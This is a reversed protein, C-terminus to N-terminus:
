VWFFYTGQRYLSAFFELAGVFDFGGDGEKIGDIDLVFVNGCIGQECLSVNSAIQDPFTVSMVVEGDLVVLGSKKLVYGQIKFVSFVGIKDLVVRRVVTPDFDSFYPSCGFKVVVEIEGMHSLSKEDLPLPCVFFCSFIGRFDGIADGTPGRLLGAGFLDKSGVPAVPADFVAAMVDDVPIIVFVSATDSCAISRFIDCSQASKGDTDNFGFAYSADCM